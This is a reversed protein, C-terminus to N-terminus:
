AIAGEARLAALEDAGLGADTLVEDTQPVAQDRVDMTAADVEDLVLLLAAERDLV